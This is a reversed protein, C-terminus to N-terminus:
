AGYYPCAKQKCEPTRTAHPCQKTASPIDIGLENKLFDVAADLTAYMSQRCCRPGSQRSILTLARATAELTQSRERASLPTAGTLISVAVGAGVAAGCMGRQACSLEPVARSREIAEALATKKDAIRGMNALVTALVPGPVVHYQPGMHNFHPHSSVLRALAFPDTEASERCVRAVLESPVASRCAQCTYHGRICTHDGNEALGCYSCVSRDSQLLIPQDCLSCNRM